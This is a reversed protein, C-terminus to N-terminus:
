AVLEHRAAYATAEARNASNTKSFINSVHRAVTNSAIFLAEGIERNSKGQTILRLVEVERETLGDPYQPSKIPKAEVQEKLAVVKEMLPKMGLETSVALAEDLLSIAKERADQLPARSHAGVTQILMNAYDYCSWALEPRYGAKRCFALADEFHAGAKDLQGIAQALLGLLRDNSMRGLNAAGPWSKLVTYQESAADVDGRHLAILGLTQRVMCINIPELVGSSLMAKASAEADVLGEDIGTIRAVFAASAGYSHGAAWIHEPLSRLYVSGQDFEGVEYELRTRPGILRMDGAGIALGRDSFERAGKWDGQLFSVTLHMACSFVLTHRSHLREALTLAASAHARAKEPEGISILVGSATERARFETEPDDVHRSLEIARLTQEMSEEHRLHMHDIIGANTLTRMELAVDLERRAIALARTFAEYAAQYDGTEFSVFLGYQSLLRAAELSDPPVLKLAQEILAAVGRPGHVSPFPYLAVLVAKHAEGAELYCDFARRLSDVAEQLRHREFTVAQVRGLGFLIAAIEADAGQGSGTAQGEKAALARQFHTLAEEYAYAALAREGAIRSYRVLKATGLLSEAQGFQYALEAAHADADNGYIEELAEAIRVHLRVRRVLSLEAALTEQILAHTFQYREMGESSEEIIHAELAADLAELLADESAEDHLAKLLRFDFERGIVSATRLARNCLESLQNLRRGIADRIGEPIVAEWEEDDKHELLRVVEGVFLPNGETRAHVAEVLGQSPSVGGVAEIFREVEQESLGRLQVREFRRERVLSGLTQSLPHGRTVEIDRYTGVVLIRSDSIERALFELLLLSSRDAWHLDDLVLMVPAARSINKLFITVSDFLRFRAEEAGLTPPPELDPFREKLQPVIEAIDAAAAGMDARLTEADRDQAYSRIAQAWPWYPPAGEGEYCRGWLVQAGRQRAVSALEQATRTKGIGPEGVLMVLRGKGSIADELAAVLAALERQRGVFGDDVGRLGWKSLSSFLLTEPTELRAGCRNCFRSGAPLAEGCSPCLM